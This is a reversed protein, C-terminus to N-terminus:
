LELLARAKGGSLSTALAFLVKLYITTKGSLVGTFTYITTFSIGGDTSYQLLVDNGSKTMSMLAPLGYNGILTSSGGVTARYLGGNYPHFGCMFANDASWSYNTGNDDDLYWVVGQTNWEDDLPVLVRFAATADISVDGRGGGLGGTGANLTGSVDTTGGGLGTWNLPDVAAFAYTKSDMASLKRGPAFAIAKVTTNRAVTLAGSYLFWESVPDNADYSASYYIKAAPDPCTMTVSQSVALGSGGNPSIVPTLTAGNSTMVCEDIMREALTRLGRSDWHTPERLTCGSSSIIKNLSSALADIQTNYSSYTPPLQTILIRTDAGFQGRLNALFATMATSYAGASLGAISDNVGISLCITLRGRSSLLAQAAAVRSVMTNWYTGGPAWDQLRSGGQGAKVIHITQDLFRGAAKARAFGNEWGHTANDTLGTHGILNNTGIDLDEFVLGTNNLIQVTSQASLEGALLDTNRGLGGSNSEGLFLFIPTSIAAEFAVLADYVQGQMTAGLSAGFSLFSVMDSTLGAVVGNNNYAGLYLDLASLTTSNPSSPNGLLSGNRYIARTTANTRDGVFFGDANSNAVGGSSDNVRMFCLDGTYRLFANIPGGSGANGILASTNAARPTRNWISIHADNQTYQVGNTAADWTTTFYHTSSDGAIGIAPSFGPSNVRAANFTGPNKWNILADDPEYLAAMPVQIRDCRAWFGSTKFTGVLTDAAAKLYDPVAGSFAAFVAAAEPNTFIYGGAGGRGMGLGIGLSIPM